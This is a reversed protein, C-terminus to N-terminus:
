WFSHFDSNILNVITENKHYTNIIYDYWKSGTSDRLEIVHAFFGSRASLKLYPYEESDRMGIKDIVANLTSHRMDDDMQEFVMDTALLIECLVIGNERTSCEDNYAMQKNNNDFTNEPMFEDEIYTSLLIEALDLRTLLEDTANFGTCLYELYYSPYNYLFYKAYPWLKIVELLDETRAAELAEKPIYFRSFSESWQMQSTDEDLDFPFDLRGDDKLWEDASYVVHPSEEYYKEYLKPLDENQNSLLDESQTPASMVVETPSPAKSLKPTDLPEESIMDSHNSGVLQESNSNNVCGYLTILMAIITILVCIKKLM